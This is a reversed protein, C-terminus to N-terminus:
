PNSPGNEEKCSKCNLELRLVRRDLESVGGRMDTNLETVTTKIEKIEDKINNLVWVILFGIITVAYPMLETAHEEM